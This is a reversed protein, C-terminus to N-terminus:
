VPLHRLFFLYSPHLCVLKQTVAGQSKAQFFYLIVGVLLNQSKFVLLVLNVKSGNVRGKVHPCPM